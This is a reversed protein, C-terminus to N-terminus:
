CALANGQWDKGKETVRIRGTPRIAIAVGRGPGRNDCLRLESPGGVTATGLGTFGFRNVTGGAGLLRNGSGDAGDLRQRVRLVPEGADITGNAPPTEAWIVWGNTWPDAATNDCVPNGYDPNPPLKCVTVQIGRKVAESRAFSLDAMLGNAQTLLRDGFIFGSMNPAAVALLIAVIVLAVILEM